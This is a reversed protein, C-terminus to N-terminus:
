TDQREQHPPFIRGCTAVGNESGPGARHDQITDISRRRGGVCWYRAESNHRYVMRRYEISYHRDQGCHREDPWVTLAPKRENRRERGKSAMHLMLQATEESMVQKPKERRFKETVTGDHTTISTLYFPKVTKGKTAFTSYATVMEMVSIDATGLAMSPVAELDSKVGMNHALQITNNMGAKELVRVSVTNVSYALAGPMSFKLDYNGEETNKPTWGEM